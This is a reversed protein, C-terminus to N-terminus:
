GQFKMQIFLHKPGSRWNSYPYLTYKDAIIRNGLSETHTDIIIRTYFIGYPSLSIIGSPIECQFSVRKNTGNRRYRIPPSWAM